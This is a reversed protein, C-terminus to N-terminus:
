KALVNEFLSNYTRSLQGDMREDVDFLEAGMSRIKM